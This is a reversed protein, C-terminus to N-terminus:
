SFFNCKNPKNSKDARDNILSFNVNRTMINDYSYNSRKLNKKHKEKNFKNSKNKYENIIKKQVPITKINESTNNNEKTNKRRYFIKYIKKNIDNISNITDYIDNLTRNINPNRIKENMYKKRFYNTNDRNNNKTIENEFKKSLQIQKYKCEKNKKKEENIAKQFNIDDIDDM